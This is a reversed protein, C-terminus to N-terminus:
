GEGLARNCADRLEVAAARPLGELAVGRAANEAALQAPGLIAFRARGTRLALEEVAAAPSEGQAEYGAAGYGNGAVRAVFRQRAPLEEVDVSLRGECPAGEIAWREM